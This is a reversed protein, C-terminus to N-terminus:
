ARSFIAAELLARSWFAAVSVSILGLTCANKALNIRGGPLQRVLVAGLGMSGISGPAKVRLRM